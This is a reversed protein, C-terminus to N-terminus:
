KLELREVQIRCPDDIGIDMIASNLYIQSNFKAEPIKALKRQRGLEQLGLVDLAVPDKSFWLQNLPVSYHLLTTEEGQYQCILADIINLAVRDGIQPIAYIEPIATALRDDDMEFRLINDVSGTTLGYLVGSIGAANHNLLPGINIIKTIQATLLKSVYSNRGLGEGKKNFELDGYVLNGLLPASPQYFVTPDYGAEQSGAVRVQYKEALEFYGALRLDSIRRDWVVINRPSFDAALLSEVVEAVVTPRTGGNRGASSLVKLGVVDNTSLISLWADKVSSKGTVRLLGARVM